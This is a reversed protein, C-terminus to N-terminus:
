RIRRSTRGLGAATREPGDRTAVEVAAMETARDAAMVVPVARSSAEPHAVLTISATPLRRQEMRQQWIRDPCRTVLHRPLSLFSNSIFCNNLLSGRLKVCIVIM